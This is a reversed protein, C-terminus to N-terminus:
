YSARFWVCKSSKITLLLFFIYLISHKKQRLWNYCFCVFVIVPKESTTVVHQSSFIKFSFFSEIRSSCIQNFQSSVNQVRIGEYKSHMHLSAIELNRVSVSDVSFTVFVTCFTSLKSFNITRMQYNRYTTFHFYRDSYFSVRIM